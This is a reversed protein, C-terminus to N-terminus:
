VRKEKRRKRNFFWKHRAQPSWLGWPLAPMQQEALRKKDEDSLEHTVKVLEKPVLEQPNDSMEKEGQGLIGQGGEEASM